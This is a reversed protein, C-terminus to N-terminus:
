FFHIFLSAYGVVLTLPISSLAGYIVAGRLLYLQAAIQLLVCVVHWGDHVFLYMIM